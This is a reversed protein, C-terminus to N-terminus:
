PASTSCLFFNPSSESAFLMYIDSGYLALIPNGGIGIHPKISSSWTTGNTTYKYLFNDSSDNSRFALYLVNNFVALSPSTSTQDSAAGANPPSLTVGDTSTYYYIAHSSLTSEIAIYLTNNFVGLGPNFIVGIGPYNTSTVQNSANISSILLTNNSIQCPQSPQCELGVYISGNFVVASPSAVVDGQYTMTAALNVGSWNVGDSTYVYYANGYADNYFLYLDNNYVVLSPNSIAAVIQGNQPVVQSKNEFYTGGSNYATYVYADGKLDESTLGLYAVWLSGNWSVAGVGPRQSEGGIPTTTDREATAWSLAQSFGAASSFVTITLL